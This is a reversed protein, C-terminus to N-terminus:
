FIAGALTRVARLVLWLPGGWPLSAMASWLAAWDPQSPPALSALAGTLALASAALMAAEARHMSSQANM